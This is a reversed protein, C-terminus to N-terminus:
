FISWAWELKSFHKRDAYILNAAPCRNGGDEFRRYVDEPFRRLMTNYM